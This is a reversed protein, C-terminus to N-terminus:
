RPLLLGLFFYSVKMVEPPLYGSIVALVLSQISFLVSFYLAGKLEMDRLSKYNEINIDYKFRSSIISSLTIGIYIFIFARSLLWYPVHYAELNNSFYLPFPHSSPQAWLFTITVVYLLIPIICYRWSYRNRYLIYFIAIINLIIILFVFLQLLSNLKIYRTNLAIIIVNGFLLSYLFRSQYTDQSHSFINWVEKDLYEKKGRFEKITVKARLRIKNLLILFLLVVVASSIVKDGGLALIGTFVLFTELKKEYKIRDRKKLSMIINSRLFIQLSIGTLIILFIGYIVFIIEHFSRHYVSYAAYEFSLNVGLVFIFSILSPVVRAVGRNNIKYGFFNIDGIFSDDSIKVM